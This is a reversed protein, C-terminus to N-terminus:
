VWVFCYIFNYNKYSKMNLNKSFTPISSIRFQNTALIEWIEDTRLKKTFAIQNIQTKGFYKFKAVNKSKNAV